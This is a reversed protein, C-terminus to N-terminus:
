LSCVPFKLKSLLSVVNLTIFNTITFFTIVDNKKQASTNRLSSTKARSDGNMSYVSHKAAPMYKVEKM